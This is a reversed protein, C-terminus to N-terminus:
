SGIGRVENLIRFTEELGEKIGYKEKWGLTHIKKSSLVCNQPKSYGKTELDPHYDFVVERGAREAIMRALEAITTISRDNAVNYIEGSKGYFLIHLIARVADILYCYTRRQTGPSHLVVNKGELANRIFQAHAKNDDPRMTPGFVSPLRSILCDVNYEAHYAKCLCEAARKSEPYCNRLLNLDIVGYNSEDYEECDSQGYVEFSSTFLVRAPNSKCYELVNKTGIINTLITEAPFSAYSNPDAFSAAHVIYDIYELQIPETISQAICQVEPYDGFRERLKKENRSLAYVTFHKKFYQNSAHLVDIICSGIMGSAGTILIVGGSTEFEAAASAITKRYTPSNLLM